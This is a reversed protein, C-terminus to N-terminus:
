AEVYAAVVDQRHGSSMVDYDTFDTPWLCFGDHHKATLVAFRMGAAAAADAWQGCDLATPNFSLPDQNPNVWEMDHFTGMNFHLFMGFRWDVFRKQLAYRNGRTLRAALATTPMPIAVSATAAGALALFTRRNM